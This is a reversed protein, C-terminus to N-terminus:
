ASYALGLEDVHKVSRQVDSSSGVVEGQQRELYELDVYSDLHVLVLLVLYDGYQHDKRRCLLSM